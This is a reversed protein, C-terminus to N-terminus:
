ASQLLTFLFNEATSESHSLKAFPQDATKAEPVGFNDMDCRKLTHQPVPPYPTVHTQKTM